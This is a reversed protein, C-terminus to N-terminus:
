RAKELREKPLPAHVATESMSTLERKLRSRARHLRVRLAPGSCGAALAARRPDLGDWAVLMLAEREGAPLRRIAEILDEDIQMHEAELQTDGFSHANILRDSLAQRRRTSRNRNAIHRRATAFLWPVADEPVADLKRWTTLFTESLVDHVDDIPVRRAAYRAVASAHL